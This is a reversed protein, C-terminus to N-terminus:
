RASACAAQRGRKWPKPWLATRSYWCATSCRRASGPGVSSRSCRRTGQERLTLNRAQVEQLWDTLRSARNRRPSWRCPISSCASRGKSGPWNPPVHRRRHRRLGGYGARHLTAATAVLRGAGPYQPDGRAAPRVDEPACHTGAAPQAPVPRQRGARARRCGGPGPTDAGATGGTTRELISRQRAQGQAQLWTIYDRHRRGTREAQEGRLSRASASCSRAAGAMWCSTTTPTSWTTASKTWVCWSWGCCPRRSWSSVGGANARPWSTSLRPSRKAVVGTM